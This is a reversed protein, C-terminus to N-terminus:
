AYLRSVNNNRTVLFFTTPNEFMTELGVVIMTDSFRTNQVVQMGCAARAVFTAHSLMTGNQPHSTLGYRRM